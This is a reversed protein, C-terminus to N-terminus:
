TVYFIGAEFNVGLYENLAARLNRQRRPQNLKNFAGMEGDTEAGTKIEPPCHQSLQGYGPQGYCKSTFDPKVRVKIREQEDDGAEELALSPQCRFQRPTQKSDLPVYSFRISGVQRRQTTVSDAFIVNRALPIERVYVPGLITTNELTTPPGYPKACKPTISYGACGSIISDKVLLSKTQEPLNLWGTISDTITVQLGLVKSGSEPAWVLSDRKCKPVLTTHAITLDIPNKITIQGDVWLGNLKLSPVSHNQANPNDIILNGKLHACHYNPAEITLSSKAPLKITVGNCPLQCVSNQIIQICGNIEANTEGNKVRQKWVCVAQNWADVADQLTKYKGDANETLSADVSAKWTSDSLDTTLTYDRNYPGGGMDASFGYTYTVEVPKCPTEKFLLRGQTVDVAVTKGKLSKHCWDVKKWDDKPCDKKLHVSAVQAPQIQTDGTKINLSLNPGYYFSQAKKLDLAKKLDAAFEEVTLPIPLHIKEVAQVLETKKPANFLPIDLGLPHFRYAGPQGCVAAAVNTTSYTQLRWLFIGMNPLNFKGVRAVEPTTADTNSVRTINRVDVTHAIKEFPGGLDDLAATNRVDVTGGKGSRLHQINQTAGLLEFFPVARAYWDTAERIVWELTAKIGKRRRYSITNAVRARQSFIISRKDSLGQVGLLDGIYPIVWPECTEIFWNDYLTDMDSELTQLQSELIAMLARLPEGQAQDKQRYISPLLRYLRDPPSKSM